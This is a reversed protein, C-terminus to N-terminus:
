VNFVAVGQNKLLNYNNKVYVSNQMCFYASM